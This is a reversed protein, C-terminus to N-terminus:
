IEYKLLRTSHTKLYEESLYLTDSLSYQIVNNKIDNIINQRNIIYVDKNVFVAFYNYNDSNYVDCNKINQEVPNIIIINLGLPVKQEATVYRNDYINYKKVIDPSTYLVHLLRNHLSKM